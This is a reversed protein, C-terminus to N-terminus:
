LQRMVAAYRRQARMQLHHTLPGGLRALLTSPNSFARLIFRVRGDPEITVGFYEEGTEPHGRLTGYAFGHRNEENVAYVVRCPATIYLGLVRMILVASENVAPHSNSAIVDIGARRQVNWKNLVDVCRDFLNRGSGLDFAFDHHGYGGPLPGRTAGVESYTFPLTEATLLALNRQSHTPSRLAPGFRFTKNCLVDGLADDIQTWRFEFGSALLQAPVCRRGTLALAPDSGLAWAGIKVAWTPTPLAPPRHLLRRLSSMLEANRVPNPSTVHVVGNIQRTAIIHDIVSIFDDIHIWSIWQHGSAIRGGLGACTISVLRGMAPTDNDFVVGTRLVVSREAPADVFAHEWAEAVETMQPLPRIPKATEDLVTDGCDGYIALTSMQLWLPAIWGNDVLAQKLALTSDVRSKRLTDINEVTPRIDVLQGALNIIVAGELHRQWKGVTIADWYVATGYHCRSPNRSLVIVEDGNSELHRALRQGLAGSGGAIVYKM